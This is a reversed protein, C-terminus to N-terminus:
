SNEEEKKRNKFLVIILLISGGILSLGVATFILTGAGGTVPLEFDSSNTVTVVVVDDDNATTDNIQIVMPSTIRTFGPPATFEYLLYTGETLGYLWGFGPSTPDQTGPTITHAFDNVDIPVWQGAVQHIQQQTFLRFVAGNLPRANTDVKNVYLGFATFNPNEGPQEGISVGPNPGYYLFGDNYITGLDGINGVNISTVFRIYINEGVEGFEAIYDRGAELINVTLRTTQFYTGPNEPDEVTSDVTATALSWYTSPLTRITDTNDTFTVTVSGAVLSLRYDLTDIVRIFTTPTVSPIPLMTGLTDQIGVSFIWPVTQGDFYEEDVVKDFPPQDPAYQKPYVNVNYVWEGNFFFPLSVIFPATVDAEATVDSALERVIYVGQPVNQVPDALAGFIAQGNLDTTAEFTYTDLATYRFNEWDAIIDAWTLDDPPVDLAPVNLRVIEWESGVVVTHPPGTPPAIPSGPVITTPPDTQLWVWHNITLSVPTDPNLGTPLNPQALVSTAGGLILALVLAVVVLSRMTKKM